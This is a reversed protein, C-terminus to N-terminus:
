SGCNKNQWAELKGHANVTSVLAHGSSEILERLSELLGSINANQVGGLEAEAEAQIKTGKRVINECSQEIKGLKVNIGRIESCLSELASAM